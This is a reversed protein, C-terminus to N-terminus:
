RAMMRAYRRENVYLATMVLLLICLALISTSTWSGWTFALVALLGVFGALRIWRSARRHTIAAPSTDISM